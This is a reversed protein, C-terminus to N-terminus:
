RQSFLHLDLGASRMERLLGGRLRFLFRLGLLGRRLRLLFCGRRLRGLRDLRGFWRLDLQARAAALFQNDAFGLPSLVGSLFEPATEAIWM